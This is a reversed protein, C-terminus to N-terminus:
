QQGERTVEIATTMAVSGRWKTNRTSPVTTYSEGRVEVNLVGTLDVHGPMVLLYRTQFRLAPGGDVTVNDQMSLRARVRRGDGLDAYTDFRM